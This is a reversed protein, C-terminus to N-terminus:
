MKIYNFIDRAKKGMILEALEEKIQQLRKEESVTITDNHTKAALNLFEPTILGAKLFIAMNKGNYTFEFYYRGGEGDAADPADKGQAIRQAVALMGRSKARTVMEIGDIIGPGNVALTVSIKDRCLEGDALMYAVLEMLKFAIAVGAIFSRGHYKIMDQYTIHLITDHDKVSIVNTM